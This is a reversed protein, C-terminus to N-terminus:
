LANKKSFEIKTQWMDPDGEAGSVFQYTDKNKTIRWRVPNGVYPVLDVEFDQFRQWKGSVGLSNCDKSSCSYEGNSQLSIHANESEWRGVLEENSQINPNWEIGDGQINSWVVLIFFGILLLSSVLELKKIPRAAISQILWRCAFAIIVIFIVTFILYGFPAGTKLILELM